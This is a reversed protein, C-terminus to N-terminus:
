RESGRKSSCFLNEEILARKDRRLWSESNSKWKKENNQKNM